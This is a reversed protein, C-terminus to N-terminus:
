PVRIETITYDAGCAEPISDSTSYSILSDIESQFLREAEQGSVNSYHKISGYLVSMSYTGPGQIIYVICGASSERFNTIDISQANGVIVESENLSATYTIQEGPQALLMQISTLLSWPTPINTNTPTPLIPIDTVTLASTSTLTPPVASSTEEAIATLTQAVSIEVINPTPSPQVGVIVTGNCNYIGNFINADFSCALPRESSGVPIAGIIAVVVAAIGAVIAAQVTPHMRTRKHNPPPLEGNYYEDYEDRDKPM